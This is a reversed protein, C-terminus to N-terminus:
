SADPLFSKSWGIIAAVAYFILSISVMKGGWPGLVASFAASTMGAGTFGGDAVGSTLIVLATLTCVVLTDAFVEFIGWMGQAAPNSSDASAHAIPASGLGAENSFIGRAFGFRVAQSVTYGAVGGAASAPTFASSFILHIAEPLRDARLILVLISCTLYGISLFPIMWETVLAIRRIGGIIVLGIALATLLGSLWYPFSWLQNTALSIANSQTMNGVGLSAAICLCSFIIALVKSGIGKEMYYMPGGFYGSAGKQRYRVALLVEAYKTMMGFFASIWMWFIAGPGGSIIATASGTLNGTGVQGAIATALSQFSSMGDAGAKKGKLSFGSFAKKFALGFDRIQIGRLIFTYFIGCGVLVIMMPVGWLVSNISQVIALLKDEM